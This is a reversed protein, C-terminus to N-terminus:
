LEKMGKMRRGRVFGSIPNVTLLSDTQTARSEVSAVVQPHLREGPHQHHFVRTQVITDGKVSLQKFIQSSFATAFPRRKCISKQITRDRIEVSKQIVIMGAGVM